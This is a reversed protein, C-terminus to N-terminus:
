LVFGENRLKSRLKQVDISRIDTNEKVSLAIAAGAAQGLASCFPM